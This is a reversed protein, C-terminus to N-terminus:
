AAEVAVEINGKTAKSYPCMAHAADALQQIRAKEVGPIDVAIKAALGSGGEPDIGVAVSVSVTSGTVDEGSERAVASLASQFCGAWAAAFLQEPNTDPNEISGFADTLKRTLEEADFDGVATIFANDPRYYQRYHNYLDERTMRKLDQEYGIVSHGYAHGQFAAGILEEYLHYTPRNEAGQRESLIVTRESAVEDAEFLSNSMRDSEIKISLDIQDAPITEFYATWDTSTMANLYGGVRSVDGFISGKPITPTGKFQMHEVWHSAGTLGPLENRSGVRYWVWFSTVPADHKEQLFLTLGNDLSVTKRPPTHNSM